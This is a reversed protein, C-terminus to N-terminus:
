GDSEGGAAPSDSPVVVTHYNAWLHLGPMPHSDDRRVIVEVNPAGYQREWSDPQEDTGRRWVSVVTATGQSMAEFYNEGIHHVRAGARLAPNRPSHEIQAFGHDTMSKIVSELSEWDINTPM